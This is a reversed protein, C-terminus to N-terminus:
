AVSGTQAPMMPRMAPSRRGAVARSPATNMTAPMRALSSRGRRRPGAAAVCQAQVGAGKAGASRWCGAGGAGAASQDNRVGLRASGLVALAKIKGAKLNGLATGAIFLALDIQNGVVSTLATAEGQFPVHVLAAKLKDALLASM